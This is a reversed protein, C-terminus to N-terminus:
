KTKPSAVHKIERSIAALPRGDELNLACLQFRQRRSPLRLWNLCRYSSIWISFDNDAITNHFVGFAVTESIELSLHEKDILSLYATVDM